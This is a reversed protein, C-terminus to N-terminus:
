WPWWPATLSTLGVLIFLISGVRRVAREPVREGLLRGVLVSVVTALAMGAGAGAGTWWPHGNRAALAVVALQSRDGFEAVAVLAFAVTFGARRAPRTPADEEDHRLGWFGLGIFVLGAGVAVWQLPLLTGAWAGAWAGAISVVMFAAAAGLWVRLASGRASLALVAFQTKDGFEALLAVAGAALSATWADPM